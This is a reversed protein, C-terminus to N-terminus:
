APFLVPCIRPDSYDPAGSETKAVLDDNPHYRGREVYQNDSPQFHVVLSRRPSAGVNPGSGHLTKCHHFSVQGRRLEIPVLTADREALVANIVSFTESEWKVQLADTWQHSGDVMSMAGDSRSVDAFPIWATLMDESSCTQWYYRDTHWAVNGTDGETGTPKYLLQDHWLRLKDAGSLRAACAAVTPYRALRALERVRLTAYDNKRMVNGDEPRWGWHSYPKLGLARSTPPAGDLALHQDVDEEYFRAMGREAVTLIADPIIVPSVWYGHKTYFTVDEDSPLYATAHEEDSSAM